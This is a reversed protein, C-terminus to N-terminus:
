ALMEVTWAPSGGGLEADEGEEDIERLTMAMRRMCSWRARHGEGGVGVVWGDGGLGHM